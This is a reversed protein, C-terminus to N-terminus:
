SQSRSRISAALREIQDLALNGNQVRSVADQLISGSVEVPPELFSPDTYPDVPPVLNHRHQQALIENKIAQENWKPGLLVGLYLVKATRADLGETLTAEFFMRDVEEWPRTRVDCFYDHIVAADRYKGTFPSGVISWLWRPISAGDTEAGAPVQWPVGHVDVYGFPQVLDMHVGDPQWRAEVTGVFHAISELAAVVPSSMVLSAAVGVGASLLLRTKAGIEVCCLRQVARLRSRWLGCIIVILM